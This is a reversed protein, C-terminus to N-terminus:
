AHYHSFNEGTPGNAGVFFGQMPMTIPWDVKLTELTELYKGGILWRRNFFRLIKKVSDLSERHHLASTHKWLRFQVVGAQYLSYPVFPSMTAYDLKEPDGFLYASFEVMATSAKELMSLIRSKEIENQQRLMSSDYLTFLASCCMSIAACYMGYTKEELVLLPFLANLTRDLQLAEIERFEPDSVPVYVHRLVRGILHCNQCERSFSAARIDQPTSVMLTDTGPIINQAWMADDIPLLDTPLPDETALLADGNCLNIFRDLNLLAWWVRKEEEARLRSAHDGQARQFLKKNLGLARATRACAGISISAAPHIGHGMEYLSVLLRAQV